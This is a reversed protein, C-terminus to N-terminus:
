QHINLRYQLNVLIEERIKNFSVFDHPGKYVEKSTVIRELNEKTWNPIELLGLLKHKDSNNIPWVILTDFLNRLRVNIAILDQCAVWVSLNINRHNSMMQLFAPSKLAKSSIADDLILLTHYEDHNAIGEDRNHKAVACISELNADSYSMYIYNQNGILDPGWQDVNPAIVCINTFIQNYADKNRLFNQMLNTKGARKKALLLVTHPIDILKHNQPIARGLEKLHIPNEIPVVEINM